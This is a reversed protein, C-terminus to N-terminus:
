TPWDGIPSICEGESTFTLDIKHEILQENVRLVLQRIRNPPADDSGYVTEGVEAFPVDYKAWVCRLFLWNKPTVKVAESDWYVIGQRDPDPGYRPKAASLHDQLDVFDLSLARAYSIGKAAMLDKVWGELKTANLSGRLNVFASLNATATHKATAGVKQIGGLSEGKKLRGLVDGLITIREDKNTSSLVKSM